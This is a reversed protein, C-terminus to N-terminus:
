SSLLPVPFPICTEMRGVMPHGRRAWAWEMVVNIRNCWGEPIWKMCECVTPFYAICPVQCSVTTCMVDM